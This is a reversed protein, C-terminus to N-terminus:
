GRPSASNVCMFSSGLGPQKAAWQQGTTTCTWEYAFGPVSTLSVGNPTILTLILIWANM